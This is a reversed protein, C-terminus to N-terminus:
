DTASCPKRSFVPIVESVIGMAPLILIYVEPHGFIWFLHQWFTLSVEKSFISSIPATHTRDFMFAGGVCHHNGPICTHDLFQCYSDDLYFLFLRMMTMGPARMNIITIFNFSALLSAVGLIQLAFIWFDPGM